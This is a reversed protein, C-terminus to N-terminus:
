EELLFVLPEELRKMWSRETHDAGEFKKTIWNEQNFGNKIMVSDILAQNPEYLSDITETGFDFYIKHSDPDPYNQDLYNAFATPIPNNKNTFTATWHTSLCAAGGFVDPYECIAYM